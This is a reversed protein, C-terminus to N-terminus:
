TKEAQGLIPRSMTGVTPAHSTSSRRVHESRVVGSPCSDMTPGSAGQVMRFPRVETAEFDLASPPPRM